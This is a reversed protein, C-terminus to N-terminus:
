AGELHKLGARLSKGPPQVFVLRHKLPCRAPDPCWKSARAHPYRLTCYLAKLYVQWTPVGAMWDWWRMVLAM